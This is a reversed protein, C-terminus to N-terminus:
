TPKSPLKMALIHLKHKKLTKIIEKEDKSNIILVSKDLKEFKFKSLEGKRAYEYNGHYSKDTYGFLSRIIRTKQVTNKNKLNYLLMTRAM